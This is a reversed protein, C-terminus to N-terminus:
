PQNGAYRAGKRLNLGIPLIQLNSAVHRGGRAIPRIHDVHLKKGLEPLDFVPCPSIIKELEIARDYIAKIEQTTEGDARIKAARMRQSRAKQARTRPDAQKIQAYKKLHVRNRQKWSQSCALAKSRNNKVYDRRRDRNCAVCRSEYRTSPKGQRTIYPYASFNSLPKIEKCRGCSKTRDPRHWIERLM